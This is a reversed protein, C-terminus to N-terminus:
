GKLALTICHDILGSLTMGAAAMMRPYRSYVTFGPLTNVENLIIRGNEQLFMDVRSLGKCGLAKYIAKATEQIKIRKEASLNAPVLVVANESGKEPHDEQHIRFIGHSLSIQDVEGVILDTGNGLVACGVELGSVAQEILVKSDYQRATEIATHLEDENNVKNVGFSSGSRAPKVFVPYTLTNSDPKDGHNLILFEPTGFGANKAVIYTLSKDMCVASSQVDCGVYPIGSLEFLGQIAGDEGSKGHLVSFVADIRQIQYGKNRMVLLGHMKKDPSLVASRCNENDWDVCPKECMKWVGSRTIGIYIPEYKETDINDAIEKASKVSVDHEESCGGFLLAIKLRNM